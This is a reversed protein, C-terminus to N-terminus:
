GDGHGDDGEFYVEKPFVPVVALQHVSPCEEIDQHAQYHADVQNRQKYDVIYVIRRM